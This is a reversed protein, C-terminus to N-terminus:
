AEPLLWISTDPVVASRCYRQPFLTHSMRHSVGVTGFNEEVDEGAGTGMKKESGNWGPRQLSM